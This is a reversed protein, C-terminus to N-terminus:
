EVKIVIKALTDTILEDVLESSDGNVYFYGIRDGDTQPELMIEGNPILQQFSVKSENEISVLRGPITELFRVASIIKPLGEVPKSVQMGLDFRISAEFYDYGTSYHIFYESVGFGAGRGATEVLWFKGTMDEILETHCVGNEYGLADHAAEVLQRIENCQRDTISATKLLNSVTSNTGFVKDKWTVLVLHTVGSLRVSEVTYERGDIFEEIIVEGTSSLKSARELHAPAVLSIAVVSVGRSGSSDVPKIIIKETRFDVLHKNIDEFPAALLAFKPSSLEKWAQRQEGKNTLKHALTRGTGPLGYLDRLNAASLMGAECTTCVVAAPVINRESFFKRVAAEVLDCKSIDVLLYEEAHKFGPSTFSGDIALTKFGMEKVVQIASSQWTGAGVHVVWDRTMGTNKRQNQM